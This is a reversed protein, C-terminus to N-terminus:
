IGNGIRSQLRRRIRDILATAVPMLGAREVAYKISSLKNPRSGIYALFTDALHFKFWKEGFFERHKYLIATRKELQNGSLRQAENTAREHGGDNYILLPDSIWGISYQQRIRIFVDWDEGQKLNEDFMVNRLVHTRALLASPNFTSRRLDEMNIDPRRHVRLPYGNVIAMCLVADYGEIAKLQRELKDERWEDDDDMFAIYDGKAALIGTNRAASVGKNTDHRIYRIRVDQFGKVVAATNDPSGDDVVVIEMNTYTQRLVNTIAQAIFTARRYTPILM